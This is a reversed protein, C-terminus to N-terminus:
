PFCTYKTCIPYRYSETDEDTHDIITDMHNSLHARSNTQKMSTIIYILVAYIHYNINQLNKPIIPQHIAVM